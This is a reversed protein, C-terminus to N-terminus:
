RRVVLDSRIVWKEGAKVERGEHLLCKEGHRHLLAMGVELSVAIPEPPRADRSSASSKSKSKSGKATPEPDPYFVTEGGACTTLYILLTWTTRAPISPPNPNSNASPSFDLAVSEDYHPAFFQGPSYRYIRINPNLGLVEGGWIDKHDNTNNDQKKEANKKQDKGDEDEDEKGKEDDEYGDVGRGVVEKLGTEVWLREAFLPDHVHFRDNVRVAEDRKRTKPTTVLPISTSLFAVYTRCLTSTFFHPITYIQSPLVTTLSLSSTPILPKLPPWNPPSQQGQKQHPEKPQSSSSKATTRQQPIASQKSKAKAKAAM